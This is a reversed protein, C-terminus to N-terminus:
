ECLQIIAQFDKEDIEIEHTLEFGGTVILTIELDKLIDFLNEPMKSQDFAIINKGDRNWSIYNLYKKM